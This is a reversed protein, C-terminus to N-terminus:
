SLRFGVRMPKTSGRAFARKKARSRKTKTRRKTRRRM